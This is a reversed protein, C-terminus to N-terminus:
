PPTECHRAYEDALYIRSQAGSTITPHRAFANKNLRLSHAFADCFAADYRADSEDAGGLVGAGGGEVSLAYRADPQDTGGLEAYRADIDRWTLTPSGIYAAYSGLVIVTAFLLSYAVVRPNLRKDLTIPVLFAGRITHGAPKQHSANSHHPPLKDRWLTLLLGIATSHQRPGQAAM